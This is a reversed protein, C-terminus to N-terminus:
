NVSQCWTQLSDEACTDKDDLIKLIQHKKIVKKVRWLYFFCVFFRYDLKVVLNKIKL